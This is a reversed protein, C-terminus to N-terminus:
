DDDARGLSGPRVRTPARAVPEARARDLLVGVADTIPQMLSAPLRVVDRSVDDLHRREGLPLLPAFPSRGVTLPASLEAFARTLESRARPSRPARNLVPLVCGPEVGLSTAAHVLRVMRHLGKPGPLGVIVLVDAMGVATRAMTNREEVDISGCDDEGELDPSCDAVAVKYARRVNDLAAAFARPRVTAWDRHRRLGLLLQYHRDPVAFTLARVDHVLLEGARHAEVLEQVGPVVDGADHLLAQDAHLALDALLVLGGHRPDSGLGQALAMAVTSAGTGGPGSVAVLPARWAGPAIRPADDVGLEDARGVFPASM